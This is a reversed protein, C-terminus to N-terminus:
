VEKYNYIELDRVHDEGEFTFTRNHEGEVMGTIKFIEGSKNKLLTNPKFKAKGLFTFTKAERDMELLPKLVGKIGQDILKFQEANESFTKSIYAAIAMNKKTKDVKAKIKDGLKNFFSGDIVKKEKKPEDVKEAEATVTPESTSEIKEEEAM